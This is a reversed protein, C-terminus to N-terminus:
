QKIFKAPDVEQTTSGSVIKLVQFFFKDDKGDITVKTTNGVKGIKAGKQVQQGEKVPVEKQLNSYVTKYGNTHKITVTVGETTEAITEVKGDLAAIVDANQKCEYRQGLNTGGKGPGFDVLHETYAMILKGDIPKVWVNNNTTSAAKAKDAAAKDAAAKAEATSKPTTIDPKKVELANPVDKQDNIKSTDGQAVNQKIPAKATKTNRTSVAAVTAVVCLCVFLIVYFGERKFFNSSKNFIKKDM